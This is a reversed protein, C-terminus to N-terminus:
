KTWGLQAYVKQRQDDGGDIDTIYAIDVVVSPIGKKLQEATIFYEASKQATVIYAISRPVAGWDGLDVISNKTLGVMHDEDTIDTAEDMEFVMTFGPITTGGCEAIAEDISQDSVALAFDIQKDSRTYTTRVGSVEIWRTANCIAWLETEGADVLSDGWEESLIDPKIIKEVSTNIIKGAIRAEACAYGLPAEKATVCIKPTGNKPCVTGRCTQVTGEVAFDYGCLAQDLSLTFTPKNALINTLTSKKIDDPANTQGVQILMPIKGTQKDATVSSCIPPALFQTNIMWTQPLRLNVLAPNLTNLLTYSLVALTLGTIAGAIRKKASTIREPNGGSTTWTLGAIIIMIVALIGTIAIGYQYLTQIADGIHLFKKKGGFAIKTETQGSPLCFGIDNGAADKQGGCISHTQASQFFGAGIEETSM